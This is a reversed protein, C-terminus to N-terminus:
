PKIGDVFVTAKFDTSACSLKSVTRWNVKSCVWQRLTLPILDSVNSKNMRGKLNRRGGQFASKRAPTNQLQSLYKPSDSSFWPNQLCGEASPVQGSGGAQLNAEGGEYWSPFPEATPNPSDTVSCPALEPHKEQTAAVLIGVAARFGFWREAPAKWCKCAM